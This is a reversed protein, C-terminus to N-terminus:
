NLSALLDKLEESDPNADIGEQVIHRTKDIDKVVYRYFDATKFYLFIETPGNNIAKLFNQEAKVADKIYYAYLDGLNQFAVSGNPRIKTAYEWVDRAGEYDGAIKRYTGLEILNSLNDSAVRLEDSLEKIKNELILVADEPLSDDNIVIRDLDPVSISSTDAAEDTIIDEYLVDSSLFFNNYIYYGGGVFAFIIFSIIIIKTSKM